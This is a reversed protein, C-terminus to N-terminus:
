LCWKRTIISKTICKCDIPITVLTVLYQGTYYSFLNHVHFTKTTGLLKVFPSCLFQLCKFHPVYYWLKLMTEKVNLDPISKITPGHYILVSCYFMLKYHYLQLLWLVINTMNRYASNNTIENLNSNKFKLFEFNSLLFYLFNSHFDINLKCM